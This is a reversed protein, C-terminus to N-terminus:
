RLPPPLGSPEDTAAASRAASAPCGCCARASRLRSLQNRCALDLSLGANRRGEVVADGGDELVPHDRVDRVRVLPRGPQEAVGCEELELEDLRATPAPRINFSEEGYLTWNTPALGIKTSTPDNSRSASALRPGASGAPARCRQRSRTSSFWPARGLASEPVRREGPVMQRDAHYSSPSARIAAARASLPLRLRGGLSAASSCGPGAESWGVDSSSSGRLPANPAVPRRLADDERLM